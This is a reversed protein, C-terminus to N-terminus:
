KKGAAKAAERAEQAERQRVERELDEMYGKKLVKPKSDVRRDSVVVPLTAKVGEVEVTATATGAGTAWLQGRTDGRCVEENDCRTLVLRGAVPAGQDDFVEVKLALPQKEDALALEATAQGLAIRGVVRVSVASTGKVDGIACTITAAGPGAATVTADNGKAAVSAVAGDSSTWICRSELLPKGNKARPTAHLAGTQGRGSFALSGPDLEIRAPGGCATLLLALLALRPHPVPRMARM